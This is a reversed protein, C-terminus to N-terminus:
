CAARAARANGQDMLEGVQNTLDVCRDLAKRDEPKLKSWVDVDAHDLRADVVQWADKGYLRSKTMLAEEFLRRAGDCDGNQQRLEAQDCLSALTDGHENGLVERDIALVKEDAAIADDLTREERLKLSQQFLKDREKIREQQQPTLPAKNAPATAAKAPSKDAPASDAGMATAVAMLVISSGLCLSATLQWSRTSRALM